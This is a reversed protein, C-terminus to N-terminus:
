TTGPLSTPGFLQRVKASKELQDAVLQKMETCDVGCQELKNLDDAVGTLNRESQLLQAYREKSLKIGKSM